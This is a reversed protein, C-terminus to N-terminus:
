QVVVIGKLQVRCPKRRLDTFECTKNRSPDPLTGENVGNLANKIEMLRGRKSNTEQGIPGEKSDGNGEKNGQGM